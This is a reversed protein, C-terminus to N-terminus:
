QLEALQKDIVQKFAEFPQAGVVKEGNIFFTPTSNVGYSQADAMDAQVEELMDGNQVCTEFTSDLGNSKGFAVISDLDAGPNNFIYDHILYFDADSKEGACEASAALNQSTEGKFAFDRYVVKVMGSDIYESKIQPLVQSFHRGCFPCGYDSFEVITIPANADGLVADDDVSVESVVPNAAGESNTSKQLVMSVSLAIALLTVAVFVGIAVLISDPKQTKPTSKSTVKKSPAKKVAIKKCYLLSVKIYLATNM